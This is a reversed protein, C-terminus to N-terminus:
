RIVSWDFLIDGHSNGEWVYLCFTKLGIVSVQCMNWQCAVINVRTEKVFCDCAKARMSIKGSVGFAKIQILVTFTYHKVYFIKATLSECLSPWLLL